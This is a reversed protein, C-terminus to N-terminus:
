HEQMSRVNVLTGVVIITILFIAGVIVGTTQDRNANAQPPLTATPTPAQPAPTLTPNQGLAPQIAGSLALALLALLAIIVAWRLLKRPPISLINQFWGTHM